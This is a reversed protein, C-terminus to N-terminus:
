SNATLLDHLAGPSAPTARHARQGHVANHGADKVARVTVAQIVEIQDSRVALRDAPRQSQKM